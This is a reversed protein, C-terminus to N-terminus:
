IFNSKEIFETVQQPKSYYFGQFYHCQENKLFDVQEQTEVGEAVVDFNMEKAMGLITRVITISNNDHPIDKIFARDIKIKDLPLQRIYNFSSYGTGFDDISIRIGLQKLEKLIRVSRKTERMLVSETVEIEM